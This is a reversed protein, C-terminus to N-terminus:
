KSLHLYIKNYLLARYCNKIIFYSYFINYNLLNKFIYLYIYIGIIKLKCQNSQMKDMVYKYIILWMYKLCPRWHEYLYGHNKQKNWAIIIIITM